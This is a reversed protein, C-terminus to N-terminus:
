SARPIYPSKSLAHFRILILCTHLAISRHNAVHTLPAGARAPNKDSVRDKARDPAEGIVVGTVYSAM